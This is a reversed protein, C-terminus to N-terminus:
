RLRRSVLRAVVRQRGYSVRTVMTYAGPVLHKLGLKLRYVHGSSRTHTGFSHVLKKGRYVAVSVKAKHSLRYSFRLPFRRAGGFVPREYKAYSLVGCSGRLYFDPRVSFKGHARQLVVRSVAHNPGVGGAGEVRAFYFGDTVKRHGHNAKGGWTFSGKRRFRAILRERYIKRGTSVQFIDIKQGRKVKPLTLRVRRRASVPKAKVMRQAIAAACATGASASVAGSGPANAGPKRVPQAQGSFDYTYVGRGYTAAVLLNPNGPKFRLTSIPVAPLGSGLRAYTGGGTDTSEFVGLDTGVVLHGDHIVSWDAPVDPLNGSVDTFSAGADVSKFVHGTGVKSTDDGLAGPAAWKRGYGSLTVYVTKPDSPDMRVSTIYRVPLGAAKAIHWGDSSLAAGPKDGGVNTALGNAFPLGQTIVDCYGCFGVYAASQTTAPSTRQDFGIVLKASGEATFNVVRVVYNGAAPNPISVHEADVGTGVPPPANGNASSGVETLNGQADKKYVYLDWDSIGDSWTLDVNMAADGDNPGVTVPYDASTGPPFTDPAVGTGQDGTGGPVTGSGASAVTQGATKPGTPANNGAPFGRVDLASTQNDPGDDTTPDSGATADGPKKQTGLDYVQTWSSSSTSPGSKTEFVQRGGEVLHSADAPDMQFPTSFLPSTLNTPKIDTWNVGGDSTVSIDGETYEEYAVKSNDPDVATFFGDGGYVTHSTGDPEIKGEGNDQLGMYVTGDKAMEADYPQLTHLGSNNGNGWGGQTFNSTSDTHQAFVGGDNGSFFTVGGKGDPVFLAGHQDPHTTTVPTQGNNSLDAPCVPLNQTANLITCAANGYYRGIVDFKTSTSGDLGTPPSVTPNNQWIEELGFLLRTPVGSATQRTPDPTVWLNYWAQVGPCYAVVAPAKCVPPSLASGSTTDTDIANSGELEKWSKGFDTSVWIGNLYDSQAASTTGNENADLGVVGGNFKVADQVIAYVINHNQSPGDAIGLKLRGIRAQSLPDTGFPPVPTSNGAMDMNKFSGPAGNSSVYIGNGPSEISGDDNPKTGARWGVAAMVAGPQGGTTQTNGAGQVVVDTVMNALFCDKVTPLKGSCDPTAGAGTPLNVNTFSAGGDTSRYLGAGTGAYIKSPDTPDVALKFGLVDDPVGSAHSWTKGGDRTYYVGLGPVSDGGFADDGTLVVLTGGNASTWAVGSVVQTPLADGISKWSGANDSSEWIGGNSTAAYLNGAADRTFSTTRGSLGPLGELTSGQTKDYRTDNGVLPTSGYPAWPGGVADLARAGAIGARYAGPKIATFPAVSRSARSSNARSLDAFTEPHGPQDGCPGADTEVERPPGSYLGNAVTGTTARSADPTSSRLKGLACATERAKSSEGGGGLLLGAAIVACVLVLLPAVFRLRLIKSM